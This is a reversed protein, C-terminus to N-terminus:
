SSFGRLWVKAEEQSTFLRVPYASSIFRLFINSINKKVSSKTIIAMASTFQAFDTAVAARQKSKKIPSRRDEAIIGVKKKGVLNQLANLEARIQKEGASDGQKQNPVIFLFGEKDFWVISHTLHHITLNQPVTILM